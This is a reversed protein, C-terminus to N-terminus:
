QVAAFPPVRVEVSRGPNRAALVTTLARSSRALAGRGLAVLPGDPLLRNLDDAALVLGVIQVAVADEFTALGAPSQFVATPSPGDPGLLPDLLKLAGELEDVAGGPERPRADSRPWAWRDLLLSLPLPRSAAPSRLIDLLSLQLDLVRGAVAGVEGGSSGPAGPSTGSLARLSGLVARSQELLADAPRQRLSAM